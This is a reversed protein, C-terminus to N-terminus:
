AAYTRRIFAIRQRRWDRTHQGAVKAIATMYKNPIKGWAGVADRVPGGDLVAQCADAYTHAEACTPLAESKNRPM